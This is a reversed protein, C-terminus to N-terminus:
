LAIELRVGSIVSVATGFSQVENKFGFTLLLHLIQISFVLALVFFKLIVELKKFTCYMM